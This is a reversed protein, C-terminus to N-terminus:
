SESDEEEEEEQQQEAEVLKMLKEAAAMKMTGELDVVYMEEMLATVLRQDALSSLVKLPNEIGALVPNVANVKVKITIEIGDNTTKVSDTIEAVIGRANMQRVGAHATNVIRKALGQLHRRVFAQVAPARGEAVARAVYESVEDIVPYPRGEVKRRPM